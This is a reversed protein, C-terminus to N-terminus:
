FRQSARRLMVKYLLEPSNSLPLDSNVSTDGVEDLDLSPVDEDSGDRSSPEYPFAARAIGIIRM